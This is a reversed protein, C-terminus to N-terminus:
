GAPARPFHEPVYAPVGGAARDALFRKVLPLRDIAGLGATAMGVLAASDSTFLRHLGEMAAMTLLNAGKREREYRRLVRTDGPDACRTQLLHAAVNGALGAADLLGLNIGQGALPHIQHAADGILAFRSGTYRHTHRAALPVALRPTTARLAGLVHGTAATLRAGFEDDGLAVIERAEAEFCSWVVSSRGDALPLLAVPGSRTFCQWATREHPRASSVHGIVALQGYERSTSQLRLAERVWSEAGDAGVLLSARLESGDALQVTMADPEPRLAVAPTGTLM